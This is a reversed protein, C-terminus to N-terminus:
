ISIRDLQDTVSGKREVRPSWTCVEQKNIYDRVTLLNGMAVMKKLEESKEEAEKEIEYRWDDGEHTFGPFRDHRDRMGVRHGRTRAWDPENFVDSDSSGPHASM